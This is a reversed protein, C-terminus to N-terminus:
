EQAADSHEKEILYDAIRLMDDYTRGRVLYRGNIVISPTSLVKSAQMHQAARRVKFDIGFSSMTKLFEEPDVGYEGYFEAVREENPRDGEAPLDHTRHIANYVAQHTEEVVGFAEATYYARAYPEFDPRFSAPVHVVKVYPPLEAVWAAFFPEFANCGPCIYNFFEEVVVMGDAPDLPKGNPIELYDTGAVPPSQSQAQAPGLATLLLLLAPIALKKM